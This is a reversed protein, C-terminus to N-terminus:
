TPNISKAHLASMICCHVYEKTHLMPINLRPHLLSMTLLIPVDFIGTAIRSVLAMMCVTNWEIM